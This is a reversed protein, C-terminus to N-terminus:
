LASERQELARGTSYLRAYRLPGADDSLISRAADIGWAATMKDMASLELASGSERLAANFAAGDRFESRGRGFFGGGARGVYVVSDLM